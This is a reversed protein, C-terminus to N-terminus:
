VLLGALEQFVGPGAGSQLWGERHFCGAKMSNTVQLLVLLVM